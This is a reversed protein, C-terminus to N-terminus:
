PWQRMLNDMENQGDEWEQLSMLKDMKAWREIISRYLTRVKFGKAGICDDWHKAWAWREAAKSVARFEFYTDDYDCIVYDHEPGFDQIDPDFCRGTMRDPEHGWVEYEPMLGFPDMVETIDKKRM